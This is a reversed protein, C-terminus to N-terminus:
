INNSKIAKIMFSVSFFKKLPYKKLNYKKILPESKNILKLYIKRLFKPLPIQPFPNLYYNETRTYGYELLTNIYRDAYWKKVNSPVLQIQKNTFANKLFLFFNGFIQINLVNPVVIFLLLGGPKLVRKIELVCSDYDQLYEMVGGLYVIDFSNDDFPMNKIDSLISTIELNDNKIFNEGIKLAEISNDLIINKINYKKNFFRSVAATGSGCELMSISNKNEISHSVEFDIISLTHLWQFDSWSQPNLIGQLPDDKKERWHNDWNTIKM